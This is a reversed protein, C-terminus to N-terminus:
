PTIVQFGVVVEAWAWVIQM